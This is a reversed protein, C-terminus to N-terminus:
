LRQTVKEWMVRGRKEDMYRDPWRVRDVDTKGEPGALIVSSAEAMCAQTVEVANDLDSDSAEILLADHIPACVTIGAETALCCALRLMEAGNAQM